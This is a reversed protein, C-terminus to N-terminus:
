GHYAGGCGVMDTAVCCFWGNRNCLPAAWERAMIPAMRVKVVAYRTVSSMVRGAGGDEARPHAAGTVGEWRPPASEPLAYWM